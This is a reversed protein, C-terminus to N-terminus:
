RGVLGTRNILTDLVQDIATIVRAAGEYARQYTLLSTMEEDLNVGSVSERSADVQGVVSRQVGLSRSTAQSEVGMRVVTARYAADASGAASGLEALQAAVTGDIVGPASAAAIKRPDTIAVTIDGAGTGSLLPGGALGDQDVGSAHVANVASILNTAVGNLDDRYTPLTGNLVTLQGHLSGSGVAASSGSAAFVVDVSSGGTTVADLDAVATVALESVRNGQVLLGGGILVDVTGDDAQRSVAGTLSALHLVAKDREDQLGNAPLDSAHAARIAENLSAVHQATSNVDTVLSQTEQLGRDWSSRLDGALRNLGETVALTRELQQQRPAGQDPYTAVEDWGNWFASLSTALGSQGPENWSIELDSLARSRTALSEQKGTETQARRELFADRIRDIGQLEVGGGVGRSVSWMAPQTSGDVSALNVRQRSYGETNVNAINRGATDLGARQAYLGSLAVSLSSFSSM